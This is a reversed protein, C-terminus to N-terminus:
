FRNWQQDQVLGTWSFLSESPVSSTTVSFVIRCILKLIPLKESVERFFELAVTLKQVPVDYTYNEYDLFEKLLSSLDHSSDVVKNENKDRLDFM